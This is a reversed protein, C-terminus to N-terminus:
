SYGFRQAVSSRGSLHLFCILLRHCVYLKRSTLSRHRRLFFVILFIIDTILISMSCKYVTRILCSPGADWYLICTLLMNVIFKKNQGEFAFAPLNLFMDQLLFAGLGGLCMVRRLSMGIILPIWFKTYRPNILTNEDTTKAPSVNLGQARLTLAKRLHNQCFCPSRRFHFFPLCSLAFLLLRYNIWNTWREATTM